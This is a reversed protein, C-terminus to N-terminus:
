NKKELSASEVIKAGKECTENEKNKTVMIAMMPVM